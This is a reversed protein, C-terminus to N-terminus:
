QPITAHRAAWTHCFRCVLNQPLDFDMDAFGGNGEEAIIHLRARLSLMLLLVAFVVYLCLVSVIVLLGFGVFCSVLSVHCIIPLCSWGRTGPYYAATKDAPERIPPM